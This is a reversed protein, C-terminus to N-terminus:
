HSECLINQNKHLSNKLRPHRAINKEFMFFAECFIEAFKKTEPTKWLFRLKFHAEPSFLLTILTKILRIRLAAYFAGGGWGPQASLPSTPSKESLVLSNPLQKSL